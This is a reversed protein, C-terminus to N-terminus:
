LVRITLPGGLSACCDTADPGIPVDLESQIRPRNLVQALFRLHEHDQIQVRGGPTDIVAGIACDGRKDCVGHVEWRVGDTRRYRVYGARQEEIGVYPDCTPIM